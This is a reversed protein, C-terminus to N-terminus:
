RKVREDESTAEIAEALRQMGAPMEKEMQVGISQAYVEAQEGEMTVRQTIRTGNAIPAFRWHFKGVAGPVAIEIVASEGEEVEVIKWPIPDLGPQKTAGNAGVAFPGDLTISEIGPDVVAWNAVNTWFAWAFNQETACDVSHECSWM